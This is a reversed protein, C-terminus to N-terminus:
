SRAVHYSLRRSCSRRWDISISLNECRLGAALNLIREDAVGSFRVAGAEAHYMSPMLNAFSPNYVVSQAFGAYNGLMNARNLFPWKRTVGPKDTRACIPAANYGAETLGAPTM